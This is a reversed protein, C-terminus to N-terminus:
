IEIDLALELGAAAIDAEMEWDRCAVNLGGAVMKAERRKRFGAAVEPPLSDLPDARRDAERREAEKRAEEQKRLREKQKESIFDHSPTGARSIQDPTDGREWAAKKAQEMRKLAARLDKKRENEAKERELKAAKNAAKSHESIKAMQQDVTLKAPVKGISVLSRNLPQPAAYRLQPGELEALQRDCEATALDDKSLVAIQRERKLQGKRILTLKQDGRGM